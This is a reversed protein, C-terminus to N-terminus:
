ESILEKIAELVWHMAISNVKLKSQNTFLDLPVSCADNDQTSTIFTKNTLWKIIDIFIICSVVILSCFM